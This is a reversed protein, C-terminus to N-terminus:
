ALKMQLKACLKYMAYAIASGLLGGCIIDLPYHVGVYIRSYSVIAAWIPLLWLWKSKFTNRIILFFFLGVGFSNAAHSSVFGYKGGCGKVVRVMEKIDLEYCPRLREFVNKFAHVSLLDTLAVTIIAGLFFVLAKKKPETKFLLFVLFLYLPIWTYKSTIVYWLGDFPEIGLNNLWLFLQQDIHILADIM